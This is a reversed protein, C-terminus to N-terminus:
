AVPGEREDGWAPLRGAPVDRLRPADRDKAALLPAAVPWAIALDPDDWALSAEHEPRYFDTCKYSFIASDGTVVFGHAFGPPIYLQRHDDGALTLGVWRGFTPSGVRVDVAVDYVEGRLVTVLKGQGSPHQYHLGRLVGRASVSLNDQVFDRPVGVDGHRERNWTELFHGRADRFIRPELILLGPLETEIVNM